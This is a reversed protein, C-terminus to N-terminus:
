YSLSGGTREPEGEFVGPAAPAAAPLTRQWTGFIADSVPFTVNFNRREMLSPHHHTQHLKRLYAIVKRQALWTHAPLHYATHLFEYLLYYSATVVLSLWGANVSVLTGILWAIPLMGLVLGPVTFAPFLIWRLERPSQLGMDEHTFVAHHVVAHRYHAFRLPWMPRHMPYRHLFYEGVNAGLLALPLAVIEFTALPQLQSLSFVIVAIAVLFDIALHLQWCYRPSIEAAFRTRAENM